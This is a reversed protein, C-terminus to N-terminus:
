LSRVKGKAWSEAPGRGPHPTPHRGKPPDPPRRGSRGWSASCAPQDEAWSGPHGYGLNEGSFLFEFEGKGVKKGISPPSFHPSIWKGTLCFWSCLLWSEGSGSTRSVQRCGSRLLGPRAASQKAFAPSPRGAQQTTVGAREPQLNPTNWVKTRGWETDGLRPRVSPEPKTVSWWVTSSSM